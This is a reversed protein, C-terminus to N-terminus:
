LKPPLPGGRTYYDVERVGKKERAIEVINRIKERLMRGNSVGPIYSDGWTADSTILQIHSFGFRGLIFPQLFITDKVRYLEVDDIRRVFVGSYVRLRENTIVYTTHKTQLYLYYAILIPFLLWCFLFCIIYAALHILQSSRGIWVISENPDTQQLEEFIEEYENKTVPKPRAQQKVIQKLTASKMEKQYHADSKLSASSFVEFSDQQSSSRNTNKIEV